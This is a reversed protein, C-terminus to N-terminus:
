AKEQLFALPDVGTKEALRAMAADFYPRFQKDTPMNDYAISDRVIRPRNDFKSVQVTIYGLDWMLDEHAHDATPWLGSAEVALTLAKWYTRHLKGSRKPEPRLMFYSGVPYQALLEEDYASDPTLRGAGMNGGVKQILIPPQANRKAM